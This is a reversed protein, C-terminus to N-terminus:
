NKIFNLDVIESVIKKALKKFLFYTTCFWKFPSCATNHMEQELFKLEKFVKFILNFITSIMINVNAFLSGQIFGISYSFHEIRSFKKIIDCHNICASIAQNM